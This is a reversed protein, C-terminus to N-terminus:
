AGIYEIRFVKKVYTLIVPKYEKGLLLTGWEEIQSWGYGSDYWKKLLM